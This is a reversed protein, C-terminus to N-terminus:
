LHLMVNQADGHQLMVEIVRMPAPTQETLIGEVEIQQINPLQTLVAIDAPNINSPLPGLQLQGNDVRAMVVPGVQGDKFGIMYLIGPQAKDPSIVPLQAGSEPVRIMVPM